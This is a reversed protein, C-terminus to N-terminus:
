FGADGPATRRRNLRNPLAGHGRADAIEQTAAALVSRAEDDVEIENTVVVIGEGLCQRVRADVVGHLGVRRRLPSSSSARSPEDNSVAETASISITSAVPAVASRM